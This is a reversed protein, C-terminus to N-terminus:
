FLMLASVPAAASAVDLATVGFLMSGLLRSVLFAIVSEPAPANRSHSHSM